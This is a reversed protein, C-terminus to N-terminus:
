RSVVHRVGDAASTLLLVTEFLITTPLDYPLYLELETSSASPTETSPTSAGSGPYEVSHLECPTGMLVLWDPTM